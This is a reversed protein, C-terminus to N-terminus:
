ITHARSELTLTIPIHHAILTLLNGVQIRADTKRKRCRIIRLLLSAFHEHSLNKIKKRDAQLKLLRSIAVAFSFDTRTKQFVRTKM